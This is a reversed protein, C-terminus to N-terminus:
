LKPGVRALTELQRFQRLEHRAHALPQGIGSDDGPFRVVRVMTDSPVPCEGGHWKIWPGYIKKTSM